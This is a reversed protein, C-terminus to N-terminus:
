IKMQNIIKVALTNFKTLLGPHLHLCFNNDASLSILNQYAYIFSFAAMFKYDLFLRFNILLFSAIFIIYFRQDLFLLLFVIWLRM